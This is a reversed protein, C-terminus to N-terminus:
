RCLRTDRLVLGDLRRTCTLGNPCPSSEDCVRASAGGANCATCDEPAVCTSISTSGAPCSALPMCCVKGTPCDTPQLCAYSQRYVSGDVDSCSVACAAEGPTDSLCCKEGLACTRSGCRVPTVPRSAETSADEASGSDEAKAADVSGADVSTGGDESGTEGGFSTCAASATVVLGILRLIAAGGVHGRGM